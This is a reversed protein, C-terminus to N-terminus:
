QTNGERMSYLFYMNAVLYLRCLLTRIRIWSPLFSFLQSIEHKSTSSTRKQASHTEQLKSTRKPTRPILFSCKNILFIFFIWSNNKKLKQEDTGQIRIWITNLRLNSSVIFGSGFCQHLTTRIANIVVPYATNFRTWKYNGQFCFFDRLYLTWSNFVNYKSTSYATSDRDLYFFIRLLFTLKKRREEKKPFFSLNPARM